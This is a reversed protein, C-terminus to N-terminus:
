ATVGAAELARRQAEVANLVTVRGNAQADIADLEALTQAQNARDALQSATLGEYTADPLGAGGEEGEGEIPVADPAWEDPVQLLYDTWLNGPEQLDGEANLEALVRWEGSHGFGEAISALTDGPQVTYEM